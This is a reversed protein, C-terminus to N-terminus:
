SLLAKAKETVEKITGSNDLEVLLGKSRYYEILPETDEHYIELRKRITEEKDDKRQTLEEGCNDCIGEQKPAKNVLHFSAGCKGCVRRGALREVILEDPIVMDIVKDLKINLQSLYQDLAEAQSIKRPYGDLLFAQDKIQNIFLQEVMANTVEDPVLLGKDIYSAALVGLETQNKINSRFMDGTSIHKLNFSQCLFEALTGKGAGPPGLILLRMHFGKKRILASLERLM